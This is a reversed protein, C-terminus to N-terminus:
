ITPPPAPWPEPLDFNRMGRENFYSHRPLLREEGSWADSQVRRYDAVAEAHRGAKMYADGRMVYLDPLISSAIKGDFAGRKSIFDSDWSQPFQPQYRRRVAEALIEDPLLGYEPYLTRFARIGGGFIVADMGGGSSNIIAQTILNAAENFKGLKMYVKALQEYVFPSDEVGNKANKMGQEYGFAADKYSGISALALARDCYLENQDKAGVAIAANFDNIALEFLQRSPKGDAYSAQALQLYKEARETLARAFTPEIVLAMTLERIEQRIGEDYNACAKV